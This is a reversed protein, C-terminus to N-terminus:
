RKTISAYTYPNFNFFEEPLLEGNGFQEKLFAKLTSPQVYEKVLASHGNESLWQYADPTKGAKISAYADTRLSVTGLGKITVRELGAEEMAEPLEVKRLEDFQKQLVTTAKKQAELEAKVQAMQNAIETISM